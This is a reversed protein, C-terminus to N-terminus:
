HHRAYHKAGDRDSGAQGDLRLNHELEAPHGSNPIVTVGRKEQVLLRANVFQSPFSSARTEFTARLKLTGTTPDIQNDITELTGEALKTRTRATGPKWPLRRGAHFKRSCRRFSIKPPTFIVSIPDIQTIVLLGNTDCAHVINGPDM